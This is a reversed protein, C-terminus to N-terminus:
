GVQWPIGKPASRQLLYRFRIRRQSDERFLRSSGRKCFRLNSLVKRGLGPGAPVGAGVLATDSAVCREYTPSDERDKALPATHLCRPLSMEARSQNRYPGADRGTRQSVVECPCLMKM